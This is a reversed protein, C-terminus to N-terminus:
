SAPIRILEALGAPPLPLSAPQVNRGATVNARYGRPPIPIAAPRCVKALGADSNEPAAGSRVCANGCSGFSCKESKITRKSVGLTAPRPRM